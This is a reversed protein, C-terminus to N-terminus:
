RSSASEVILTVSDAVLAPKEVGEIEIVVNVVARAGQEAPEVSSLTAVARVRSDVRVPQVFRVRNLGYNIRMTASEVVLMPGTLAPLLSLTLYGHAIPGGFPGTKAREVDVHIWQHDGTVDAFRNIRDQDILVWESTGLVQGTATALEASNAFTRM